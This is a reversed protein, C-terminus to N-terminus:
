EPFHVLVLKYGATWGVYTSGRVQGSHFNVGVPLAGMYKGTSMNTLWRGAMQEDMAPRLADHVAIQPHLLVIGTSADWVRIIEGQSRSIIKSGDPSFAVSNICDDHGPSRFLM